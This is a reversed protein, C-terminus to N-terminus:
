QRAWHAKCAPDNARNADLQDDKRDRESRLKSSMTKNPSIKARSYMM